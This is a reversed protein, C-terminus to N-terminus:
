SKKELKLAGAPCFRVCTQCSTCLKADCVPKSGDLKLATFPCVGVCGGCGICKASDVIVTM